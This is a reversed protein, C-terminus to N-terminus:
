HGNTALENMAETIPRKHCKLLMDRIPLSYNSIRDGTTRDVMEAESEEQYKQGV